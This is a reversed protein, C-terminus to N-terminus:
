DIVAPLLDASVSLTGDILRVMIANQETYGYACIYGNDMNNVSYHQLSYGFVQQSDNLIQLWYRCDLEDNQYPLPWGQHSFQVHQGDFVLSEPRGELLWHEKYFNAKNQMRNAAVDFATQATRTYLRQGSYLVTVVLLLAVVSWIVFKVVGKDIM